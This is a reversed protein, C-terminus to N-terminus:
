PNEPPAALRYRLRWVRQGRRLTIAERRSVVGYPNDRVFGWPGGPALSEFGLAAGAPGDFAEMASLAIEFVDSAVHVEGGARLQRAMTGLLYPSVVRRKGHRRKFWPDPFLLHFRDVSRPAFVRHLDVQLNAYAFVLNRLGLARARAQNRAVMRERIELGVVLREPDREALAFSFAGEACGLEVDCPPDPGLAAPPEIRHARPVLYRASLPNVHQRPKRAV